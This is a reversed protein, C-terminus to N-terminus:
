FDLRCILNKEQLVPVRRKVKKMAGEGDIWVKKKVTQFISCLRQYSFAAYFQSDVHYISELEYGEKMHIASIRNGEWDYIMIMSCEQKENGPSMCTLIYDETADIGEFQYSNDKSTKVIKVPELEDDLILLHHSQELMAVYEGRSECYAIGNFGVDIQGDTDSGGGLSAPIRIKKQSLVALTDPNICILRNGEGACCLVLQEKGSDYALDSGTRIDLIGSSAEQTHDELSVKVIRSMGTQRSEMLYYAFVGDTCAGKSFHYPDTEEDAGAQLNGHNGRVDVQTLQAKASEKINDAVSWESYSTAEGSKMCARIRAYYIKGKELGQIEKRATRGSQIRVTQADAFTRSASYEIQYGDAQASREWTLLMGTDSLREWDQIVPAELLDEGLIKEPQRVIIQIELPGAQYKGSERASVTLIAEGEKVAKLYIGATEQGKKKATIKQLVVCDTGSLQYRWNGDQVQGEPSKGTWGLLGGDGDVSAQKTEKTESFSVCLRKKQGAELSLTGKRCGKVTIQGQKKDSSGEKSDKNYDSGKKSSEKGTKKGAETLDPEDGAPDAEESGDAATGEGSGSAEGQGAPDGDFSVSDGAMKETTYSVDGATEPAQTNGATESEEAAVSLSPCLVVFLMLWATIKFYGKKQRKKEGM